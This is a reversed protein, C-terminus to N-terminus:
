MLGLHCDATPLMYRPDIETLSSKKGWTLLMSTSNQQFSGHSRSWSPPPLPYLLARCQLQYHPTLSKPVWVKWKRTDVGVKRQQATSQHLSTQCRGRASSDQQSRNGNYHMQWQAAQLPWSQVLFHRYFPSLSGAPGEDERGKLGNGTAKKHVSGIDQFNWFQGM